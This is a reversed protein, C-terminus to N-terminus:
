CGIKAASIETQGLKNHHQHLPSWRFGGPGDAETSCIPTLDCGLDQVTEVAYLPMAVMAPVGHTRVAM